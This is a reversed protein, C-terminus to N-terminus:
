FDQSYGVYFTRGNTYGLGNNPGIGGFQRNLPMANTFNKIGFSISGNWSAYYEYNFDYESYVFTSGAGVGTGATGNRDGGSFTRAGLKYFHKGRNMTISSTNRWSLDYQRRFPDTPLSRGGSSMVHSHETSLIFNTPGTHFPNATFRKNITIDLGRITYIGTNIRTPVSMSTIYGNADRQVDIGYSALSGVGALAENRTVAYASISSLAQEGAVSWYDTIITLNKQPTMVFGLNYQSSLEPKLNKSGATTVSYSGSNCNPDSEGKNKCTVEDRFRSVGSSKGQFVSLLDPAKFGTGYSSRFTIAPSLDYALGIKPNTTTGFDSYNDFRAALQITMPKIPRHVVELFGSSVSRSGSQNSATGSLSRGQLSLPDNEMKFSTWQGQTGFAIDVSKGMLKFLEGSVVLRTDFMTSTHQFWTQYAVDALSDKAGAPKFPNFQNNLIKQYLADKDAQGRVTTDKFSTYNHSMTLDYNWKSVEGSLKAQHILNNVTRESQITGLEEGPSYFLISPGTVAVANGNEDVTGWNNVVTDPISYDKGGIATNNRFDISIPASEATWERRTLVSIFDVKASKNFEYGAGLFSSYYRRNQVDQTYQTDDRRCSGDLSSIRDAPCDAGRHFAGENYPVINGPDSHYNGAVSLDYIRYPTNRTYAPEQRKYQLAGTVYGKKKTIGYMISTTTDKGVALQPKTGRIYFNGGDVQRKTVINVVGSLADSGYLASAGDTLIETQEIVSAPLFDINVSDGGATKALHMGNLLVLNDADTQGHMSIFPNDQGQNFIASEQLTNAVTYNGTEQMKSQGVVRVPSAAKQDVLQPIYSGTVVIKQLAPPPPPPPPTPESAVVVPPVVPTVAETEAAKKTANKNKAPAPAAVPIPKTATQAHASGFSTTLIFLLELYTM